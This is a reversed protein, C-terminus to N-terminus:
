TSFTQSQTRLAICWVPAGNWTHPWNRGCGPIIPDTRAAHLHSENCSIQLMSATMGPAAHIGPARDPLLDLLDDNNPV